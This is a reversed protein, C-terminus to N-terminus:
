PLAIANRRAINIKSSPMDLTQLSKRGALYASSTELVYLVVCRCLSTFALYIPDYKVCM